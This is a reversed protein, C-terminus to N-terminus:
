VIRAVVFVGVMVFAIVLKAAMGLLLGLGTALSVQAAGRHDRRGLYEGAVAGVFPFLLVGLLGALIGLVTGIAAGVVAQRSAGVKRAGLPGAM